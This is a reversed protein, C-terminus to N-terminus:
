CPRAELSVGERAEPTALKAVEEEVRRANEEWYLGAREVRARASSGLRARLDPDGLLRLLGDRLEAASPEPGSGCLLAAEGEDGVLERVNPSAPALVACGAALYEVLKMPCAYPTVAPQVAVDLAALVDELGDRQVAGPLVARGGAILRALRPSPPDLAPGGGVLALVASTAAVAPDEFAALLDELRHWPRFWAVAGVVPRADDVGLRRRGRARSGAGFGRRVGNLLVRLRRSVVGEAALARALETSVVVTLDAHACAWREAARALPGLALGGHRAREAALPSNVELVIPVGHRRAALVGAFTFTAYREYVMDPRRRRIARALRRYAVGNYGLELLERPLRSTSRATRDAWRGGAPAAAAVGDASVTPASPVLSVEEVEHGRARFARQMEAIHV